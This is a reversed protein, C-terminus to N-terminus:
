SVGGGGEEGVWLSVSQSHVAAEVGPVESAAVKEARRKGKKDGKARKREQGRTCQLDPPVSQHTCFM